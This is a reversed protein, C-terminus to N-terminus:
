STSLLLVNLFELSNLIRSCSNDEFYGHSFANGHSKLVQMPQRYLGANVVFDQEQGVTGEMTLSGLVDRVKEVFILGVHVAARAMEPEEIHGPSVILCNTIPGKRYICRGDPIAQRLLKSKGGSFINKFSFQFGVQKSDSKISCM